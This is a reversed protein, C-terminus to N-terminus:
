ASKAEPRSAEAAPGAAGKGERLRVVAMKWGEDKVHGELRGACSRTLSIGRSPHESTGLAM